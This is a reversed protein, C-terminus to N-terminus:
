QLLNSVAISTGACSLPSLSQGLSFASVSSYRYSFPASPDAVPTRHVEVQQHVLNIVWYDAIGARAYLSSKENRDFSLTTDSVEVILVADSAVPHASYENRKGRVVSVDPEPDSALSVDLPAQSRIWYGRGFVGQLAEVTRDITAYHSFKQPSMVMIEGEILEARQGQFWGLDALRYYEAKTWKRPSPDTISPTTPAIMTM